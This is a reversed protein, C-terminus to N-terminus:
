PLGQWRKRRRKVAIDLGKILAAFETESLAVSATGARPAPAAFHGRELRKMWIVYGGREFYLCKMQTRRRNIFVFGEGDLPDGGLHKRVRAALGDYSCRMDTPAVCLWLRVPARMM